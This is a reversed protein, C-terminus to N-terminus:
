VFTDILDMQHGLVSVSRSQTFELAQIKTKSCNIELGILQSSEENLVELKLFIFGLMEAM